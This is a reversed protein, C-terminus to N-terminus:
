LSRAEKRGHEVGHGSGGILGRGKAKAKFAIFDELDGGAVRGKGKDAVILEKIVGGGGKVFVQFDEGLVDLGGDFFGSLACIQVEVVVAEERKDIDRAQGPHIELGDGVGEGAIGIIAEGADGPSFDGILAGRVGRAKFGGNLDSGVVGQDVAAMDAFEELGKLLINLREWGKSKM